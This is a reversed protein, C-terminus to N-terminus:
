DSLNRLFTFEGAEKKLRYLVAPRGGQMLKEGTDV